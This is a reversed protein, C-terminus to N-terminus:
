NTINTINLYQKTYTLHFYSQGTSPRQYITIHTKLHTIQFCSIQPANSILSIQSPGETQNPLNYM